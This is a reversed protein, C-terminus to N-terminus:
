VENRFNSIWEATQRLGGFAYFHLGVQGLNKEELKQALSTVFRDPGATGFLNTISFGYKKVVSASSAVGFRSAFALLRKIGAPGPVGVRIPADIGRERVQSIWRVVPEADFGFQTLITPSLGQERLASYKATLAEWLRDEAIDPHGEPYGSIAVHNVGYEGLIGTRILSLSSDSPGEPSSPDGGVAFIRESAGIERLSSLFERLQPVSQLRRAAVHPVPRFGNALVTHAASLRLAPNETGLYTVNILTGNPIFDRAELLAPEDKGSIEVSYDNILAVAPNTSRSAVNLPAIVGQLNALGSM